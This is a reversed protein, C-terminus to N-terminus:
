WESSLPTGDTGRVHEPSTGNRCRTRSIARLPVHVENSGWEWNAFTVDHSSDCDMGPLSSISPFFWRGTASKKNGFNRAVPDEVGLGSTGQGDVAEKGRACRSPHISCSYSCCSRVNESM